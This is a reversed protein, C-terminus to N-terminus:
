LEPVSAAPRDAATKAVTVLAAGDCGHVLVIVNAGPPATTVRRPPEGPPLLVGDLGGELGGDVAGDFGPWGELGCGVGVGLEVGDAPEDDPLPALGEATRVEGLWVALLPGLLGLLLALGDAEAEAEAEAV